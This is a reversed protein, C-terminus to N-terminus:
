NPGSPRRGSGATPNFGVTTRWERPILVPSAPRERFGLPEKERGKREGRSAAAARQASSPFAHGAGGDAGEGARASRGHSLAGSDLPRAATGQARARASTGGADRVALPQKNHHAGKALAASM